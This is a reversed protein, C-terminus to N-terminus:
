QLMNQINKRNLFTESFTGEVAKCPNCSSCAAHGVYLSKSRWVERCLLAGNRHLQKCQQFKLNNEQSTNVVINAHPKANFKLALSPIPSLKLMFLACSSQPWIFCGFLRSLQHTWAPLYACECLVQGAVICMALMHWLISHIQITRQLTLTQQTSMFLCAVIQNFKLSQDGSIKRYKANFGSPCRRWRHYKSPSPATGPLVQWAQEVIDVSWPEDLSASDALDCVKNCVTAFHCM